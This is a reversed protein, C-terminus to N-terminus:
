VVAKGFEHDGELGHIHGVENKFAELTEVTIDGISKPLVYAHAKRSSIDVLLLIPLLSDSKKWLFSDIQFTCQHVAIKYEYRKSVTTNM